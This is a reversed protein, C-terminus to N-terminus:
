YGVPVLQSVLLSRRSSDNAVKDLQDVIPKIIHESHSVDTGLM